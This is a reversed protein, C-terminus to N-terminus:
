RFPWCSVRIGFRQVVDGSEPDTVELIPRDIWEDVVLRARYQTGNGSTVFWESNSAAQDAASVLLYECSQALGDMLSQRHPERRFKM